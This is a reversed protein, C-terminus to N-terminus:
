LLQSSQMTFHLCPIRYRALCMTFTRYINVTIIITKKIIFSFIEYSENTSENM